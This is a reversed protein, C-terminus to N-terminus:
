KESVMGVTFIEFPKVLMHYRSDEELAVEGLNEEIVNSRYMRDFWEQKDITLEVAEKTENVFRVIIDSSEDKKKFGTLNLGSGSWTFFGKEPPLTKEKADKEEESLYGYKSALCSVALGTQFLHGQTFADTIEEKRFLLIEYAATHTGLLQANPTPFDGWDGMEGTCRLLTVAITNDMDPLVEYEYLGFNAVLIGDKEDSMAVFNQQHECGSPNIWTKKHRNPREVVEFTSDAYHTSTQLGTPVMVRIRHDKATNDITTEVKLGKASRELSLLTTITLEVLERSRGATRQYLDICQRHERDLMEDASKPVMLKHIIRYTCRYAEDEALEIQAKTGQTTIAVSGPNQVFIYENGIDGCEQYYGIHPYVRGTEKETVSYSGDSHIQVRIFDNEMVRDAPTLSQAADAASGAAEELYYTCYGLAPVAKAEFTVKIQRAMYPQRFRDDPLEYGFRVGADEIKADVVTGEADKLVFAPLALEEMEGYQEPLQRGYSREFDVVVSVVGDRSWGTTNFVVFPYIGKDSDQVLAKTDIRDAMWSMSDAFVGKAVQRSKDFRTKIEENVPDVSCGCISDHPHNQMLKKWSYCLLEEQYEKGCLCAMVSMPEAEKELATECVRNMQKLPIHSSTTNVLTFLGDTEQSTLEGRVTSADKLEASVADVYTNFDSHIFEIDPYLRRATEIAAGLDKQVPQHDCGNMFLLHRTGAFQKAKALGEDWFAKAAEEEVPIEVGNNYWNAFLIGPLASGDPSEWMMESYTSEYEGGQVENNFGVPKVGRGFVIAKMGAQKLLQPMQGANGFADPFYGVPCIEGYQLAEKRGVLLNRVNAEGSTLFEDQLIYWPGASFRGESIHKKLRERNQPKIELYDDMVITQGDLHFSHFTSDKEFLDMSQDILEVLKMRHQEFAMYWERDWHSHSIIHVTTKMRFETRGNVKKFLLGRYDSIVPAQM